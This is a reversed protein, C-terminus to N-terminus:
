GKLRQRLLEAFTNKLDTTAGEHQEGEVASAFAEDQDDKAGVEVSAVDVVAPVAAQEKIRKELMLLAQRAPGAVGALADPAGNNLTGINIQTLSRAKSTASDPNSLFERLKFVDVAVQAMAKAETPTRVVCIADLLCQLAKNGVVKLADLTDLNGVSVLESARHITLAAQNADWDKAKEVWGDQASWQMMSSVGIAGLKEKVAEVTKPVSRSPGLECYATFAAARRAKLLDAKIRTNEVKAIQVEAPALKVPRKSPPVPKKM